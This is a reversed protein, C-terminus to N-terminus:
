GSGDKSENDDSCSSSKERRSSAVSVRGRVYESLTDEDEEESSTMSVRFLSNRNAIAKGYEEESMRCHCPQVYSNGRIVSMSIPKEMLLQLERVAACVIVFDM